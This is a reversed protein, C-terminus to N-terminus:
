GMKSRQIKRKPYMLSAAYMGGIAVVKDSSAPLILVATAVIVRSKSLLM